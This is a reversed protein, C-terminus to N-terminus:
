AGVACEPCQIEIFRLTNLIEEVSPLRHTQSAKCTEYIEGWRDTITLGAQPGQTGRQPALGLKFSAVGSQDIAVPYPIDIESCLKQIEEQSGPVLALVQTEWEQFSRYHQAMTQLYKRCEQCSAAHAVFIVLNRRGKYQWLDLQRGDSTPLLVYPLIGKQSNINDSSPTM